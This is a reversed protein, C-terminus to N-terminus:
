KGDTRMKDVIPVNTIDQSIVLAPGILYKNPSDVAGPDRNGPVINLPKRGVTIRQM